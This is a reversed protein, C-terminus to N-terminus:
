KKIDADTIIIDNVIANSARYYGSNIETIKMCLAENTLEYLQAVPSNESLTVTDNVQM